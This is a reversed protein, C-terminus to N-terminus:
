TTAGDKEEPKEGPIRVIRRHHWCGKLSAAAEEAARHSFYLRNLSVPIAWWEWQHYSAIVVFMDERKPPTPDPISVVDALLEPFLETTKPTDDM